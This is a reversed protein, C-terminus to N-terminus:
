CAPPWDVEFPSAELLELLPLGVASSTSKSSTLYYVFNTFFHCARKRIDNKQQVKAGAFKHLADESHAVKFM